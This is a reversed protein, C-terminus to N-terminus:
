RAISAGQGLQRTKHVLVNRIIAIAAKRNVERKVQSIAGKQNQKGDRFNDLIFESVSLLM